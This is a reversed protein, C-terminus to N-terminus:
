DLTIENHLNKIYDGVVALANLSTEYNNKLLRHRVSATSFGEYRCRRSECYLDYYKDFIFQDMDIYKDKNGPNISSHFREHSNEIKKGNKMILCNILHRTTYFIITIRWEYFDTPCQQNLLELFRANDKARDLYETLTM